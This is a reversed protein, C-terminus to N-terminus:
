YNADTNPPLTELLDTVRQKMLKSNQVYEVFDDHTILENDLKVRFEPDFQIYEMNEVMYFYVPKLGIAGKFNSNKLNSGLFFVDDFTAGSFDIENEVTITTFNSATIKSEAFSCNSFNTGSFTTGLINSQSLDVNYFNMMGFASNEIDSKPINLNLWVLYNFSNQYFSLNEIPDTRSFGLFLNIFNRLLSQHASLENYDKEINLKIDNKDKLDQILTNIITKNLLISDDLKIKEKSQLLDEEAEALWARLPYDFIFYNRDITLLKQIIRKRESVGVKELSGRIANLVNYDLEVALTNILIDLAEEYYDDGSKLYTGLNTAASLREVKKDSSLKEVIIRFNNDKDQQVSRRYEFYGLLLPILVAITGVYKIIDALTVGTKNELQQM